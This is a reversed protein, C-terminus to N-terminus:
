KDCKDFSATDSETHCERLYGWGTGNRRNRVGPDYLRSFLAGFGNSVTSVIIIRLRRCFGNCPTTYNSNKLLCFTHQHVPNNNNDRIRDHSIGKFRM